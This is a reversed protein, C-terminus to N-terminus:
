ALKAPERSLKSHDLSRLHDDSSTPLACGPAAAEAQSDHVEAELLLGRRRLHVAVRELYEFGLPIFNILRFGLQRHARLLKVAAQRAEVDPSASAAHALEEAVTPPVWFEVGPIRARITAIADRVDDIGKVFDLAVNTDVAVLRPPTPM